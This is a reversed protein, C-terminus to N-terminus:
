AGTKEPGLAAVTREVQACHEHTHVRIAQVYAKWDLAEVWELVGPANSGSAKVVMVFPAKATIPTADGADATLQLINAHIDRLERVLHGWLRDLPSASMLRAPIPGGDPSVGACLERLELVAPRHSEVLHDVIEHVSWSVADPRRDRLTEPVLDITQEFKQFTSRLGAVLRSVPAETGKRRLYEIAATREPRDM